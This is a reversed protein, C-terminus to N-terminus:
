FVKNMSFKPATSNEASPDSSASNPYFQPLAAETLPLEVGDDDFLKQTRLGIAKLMAMKADWEDKVSVGPQVEINTNQDLFLLLIAIDKSLSVISEPVPSLPLQYVGGIAGNIISDAEDITQGIYADTINLDDKFPSEKRIDAVTSYPM